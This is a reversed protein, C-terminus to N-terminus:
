FVSSIKLPSPKLTQALQLSCSQKLVAIFTYLVSLILKSNNAVRFQVLKSYQFSKIIIQLLLNNNWWVSQSVICRAIDAFVSSAPPGLSALQSFYSVCVSNSM